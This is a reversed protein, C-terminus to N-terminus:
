TTKWRHGRPWTKEPTVSVLACVETIHCRTSALHSLQPVLVAVADHSRVANILRLAPDAAGRRLRLTKVLTYGHLRAYRDIAKEDDDLRSGSLDSRLYAIAKM